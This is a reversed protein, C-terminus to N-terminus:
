YSEKKSPFKKKLVDDRYNRVAKRIQQDLSGYKRVFRPKIKSAYGLIDQLVLVQGDTKVGAGIGITPCKVKQTIREALKSPICELVIAFFM